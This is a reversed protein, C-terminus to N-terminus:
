ALPFPIVGEREAFDEVRSRAMMTAAFEAFPDGAREALEKEKMFVLRIIAEVANRFTEDTAARRLVPGCWGSVLGEYLVRVIERAWGPVWSEHGGLHGLTRVEVGCDHYALVHGTPVIVWGAERLPKESAELTCSGCTPAGLGFTARLDACRCLRRGDVTADAKSTASPM